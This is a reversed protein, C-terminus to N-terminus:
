RRLRGTFQMGEVAEDCEGGVGEVEDGVPGAMIRAICDVGIAHAPLQIPARGHGKGLPQLLGHLPIDVIRDPPLGQLIPVPNAFSQPFAGM